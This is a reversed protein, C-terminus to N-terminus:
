DVYYAPPEMECGCLRLILYVVGMALVAYIAWDHRNDFRTM